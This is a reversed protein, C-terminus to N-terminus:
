FQGAKGSGLILEEVLEEDELEEWSNDESLKLATLRERALSPEPLIHPAMELSFALDKPTITRQKNTRSSDVRTSAMNIGLSGGTRTKQLCNGVVNKLHSELACSLLKVCDDSITTSLRNRVAVEQLRAMMNLHSPLSKIEVSRLSGSVPALIPELGPLKFSPLGGVPMPPPLPAQLPDRLTTFASFQPQERGQGIAKLRERESKDLSMILQKTKRKKVDRHDAGGSGNEDSLSHKRKNSEAEEMGHVKPPPDPHQANYIIGLIFENHLDFCKGVILFPRVAKEFVHQTCEGVFFKKLAIWYEEKNSGLAVNLLEKTKLIDVREPKAVLTLEARVAANSNTTNAILFARDTSTTSTVPSLRGGNTNTSEAQSSPITNNRNPTTATSGRSPQRNNTIQM